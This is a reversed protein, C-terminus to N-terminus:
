KVYINIDKSQLAKDYIKKKRDDLLNVKRTHIISQTAQEKVFSLPPDQNPKVLDFVKVYYYHTKDSWRQQLGKYLKNIDILKGPFINSIDKWKQWKDGSLIFEDAHNSCYKQLLQFQEKSDSKWLSEFLEEELDSKKIMVYVLKVIPSELKYEARREQYYKMLEEDTISTDPREKSVQKEYEDMYLSNRYNEVLEDIRLDSQLKEKAEKIFCADRSWSEAIAYLAKVSDKPEDSNFYLLEAVQSYRLEQGCAKAIVIDASPEDKQNKCKIFIICILIIFRWQAQM